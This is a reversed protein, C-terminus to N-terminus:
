RSREMCTTLIGIQVYGMRSANHVKWFTGRLAFVLGRSMLSAINPSYLGITDFGSDFGRM